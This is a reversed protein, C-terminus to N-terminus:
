RGRSCSARCPGGMRSSSRAGTCAPRSARRSGPGSRTPCGYLEGPVSIGVEGEEVAFMGPHVDGISFIRYRPATRFEGLFTAGELNAHLKLGRMLTGNVFLEGGDGEKPELPGPGPSAAGAAPDVPIADPRRWRPEEDPPPTTLAKLLDSAGM